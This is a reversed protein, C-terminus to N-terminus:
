HHGKLVMRMMRSNIVAFRYTQLLVNKRGRLTKATPMPSRSLDAVPEPAQSPTQDTM